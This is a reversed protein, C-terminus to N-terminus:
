ASEIGPCTLRGTKKERSERLEALSEEVASEAEAIDEASAEVRVNRQALLEAAERYRGADRLFVVKEIEAIYSSLGGGQQARDLLMLAEDHRCAVALEGADRIAGTDGFSGCGSLAIACAALPIKAIRLM